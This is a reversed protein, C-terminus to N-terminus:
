STTPRKLRKVTEIVQDLRALKNLVAAAGRRLARDAVTPDVSATFVVAIARPNVAHLEQILDAGDGDPLGLDLIAVDVGQLQPRAEALSGAQGATFGPERDFTTALAKRIDARNEVVLVRVDEGQRNRSHAM